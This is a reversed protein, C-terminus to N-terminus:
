LSVPGCLQESRNATRGCNQCRFQADQVMEKYQQPHNFHFGEYMLHCLHDGHKESTCGSNEQIKKEEM